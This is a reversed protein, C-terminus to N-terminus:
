IRQEWFFMMVIISVAVIMMQHVAMESRGGLCIRAVLVEKKVAGWGGSFKFLVIDINRDSNTHLDRRSSSSPPFKYNPNLENARSIEM